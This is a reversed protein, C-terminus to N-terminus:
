RKGVPERIPVAVRRSNGKLGGPTYTGNQIPFMGLLDVFGEGIVVDGPRCGSPVPAGSAESVAQTRHSPPQPPQLPFQLPRYLLSLALM